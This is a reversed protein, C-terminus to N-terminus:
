KMDCYNRYIVQEEETLSDEGYYDVRALIERIADEDIELTEGM